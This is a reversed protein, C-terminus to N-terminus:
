PTETTHAEQPTPAEQSAQIRAERAAPFAQELRTIYEGANPALIGAGIEALDDAAMDLLAINPMKLAQLAGLLASMKEGMQAWAQADAPSLAFGARTDMSWPRHDESLRDGSRLHWLLDWASPRRKSALYDLPKMTAAREREMGTETFRYVGVEELLGMKDFTALIDFSVVGGEVGLHLVARLSRDGVGVWECVPLAEVAARIFPRLMPGFKARAYTLTADRAQTKAADHAGKAAMFRAEKAAREALAKPSANDRPARKPLVDYAARKEISAAREQLLAARLGAGTPTVAPFRFARALVQAPEQHEDLNANPANDDQTM